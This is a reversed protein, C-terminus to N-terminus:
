RNSDFNYCEFNPKTCNKFNLYFISVEGFWRRISQETAITRAKHLYEPTRVTIEQHRNLFSDLWRRGPGKESNFLSTPTRHGEDILKKATYILANKTLPIGRKANDIIWDSIM